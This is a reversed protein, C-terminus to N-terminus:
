LTITTTQERLKTVIRETYARAVIAGDCARRQVYEKVESRPNRQGNGSAQSTTALMEQTDSAASGDLSVAGTAICQDPSQWCGGIGTWCETSGVIAFEHCDGLPPDPMWCGWCRDQQAQAQPVFAFLATAVSVVVARAFVKSIQSSM